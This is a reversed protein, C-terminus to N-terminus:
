AREQLAARTTEYTDRTVRMMGYFVTAILGPLTAAAYALALAGLVQGDVQGPTAKAPFVVFALVAGAFATGVASDIRQFFTRVSYLIGEQRLGFKLENEDAIDALASRITTTLLSYPAHQLIAFGILIAILGPTAPSLVGFYGLLLPIGPAISYVLCAFMGTWRKDLRVHLPKVIAAAIFYGAIQGIILYSLENNDLQWFFTGIYLTLGNRVGTMLSFFLLAFLLVVYNRNALARRVDGLFTRVGFPPTDSAMQNVYPIRSRTWWTSAFLISAILLATAITFTPYRDADLAGNPLGPAPAFFLRLTLLAALMDGVFMFFTNYAMVSSREIYGDSMEGGFALHPTHYITMMQLLLTNMVALWILMGTQGLAAPPNFAAYFSLAVPLISAFMFPHRRGLRSRTRDSWSGVLPDFVANVILGVALASGVLGPPLGLVQNYYIMLFTASIFTISEAATGLAFAVKLPISLPPKERGAGAQVQM